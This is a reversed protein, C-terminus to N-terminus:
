LRLEVIPRGRDTGRVLVFIATIGGAGFLRITGTDTTLVLTGRTVDIRSGYPIPGGTFPRGNVLVTGVPRGTAPPAAATTTPAPTTASPRAGRGRGGGGGPGAARIDVTAAYTSSAGANLILLPHYDGAAAYTHGLFHAPAGTEDRTNGDGYVLTWSTVPRPLDLELRFSVKLPARGAAPTPVFSVRPTAGAGVSVTASTYFRAVTLEFPGGQLVFLMAQ